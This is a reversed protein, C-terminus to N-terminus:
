QLSQLYAVIYPIEEDKLNLNPMKSGPKVGPPDHLWTALSKADNPLIGAALTRRRAFHTLNPGAIGAMPTGKITHCGACAGQTVLRKGTAISSDTPEVAPRAENALWANFEAPTQAIMRMRMLAHSDGCFEACQGMYIGPAEPTFVLHNVRNTILDRKGGMQPVWFSHLVNDSHLRLAVQRGVPVHIENATYVTDNGVAYKFQWWWQKGVVDITLADARPTPQTSFIAKVTPVAIIAVIVAPILTWTLELTTNGHIQQPEPAGPRYRFRLLIYAMVAFTLLGVGIGLKLTLFYLDDQIRAMDSAPVMTTQPYEKLHDTGRACASLIPLVALSAWMAAARIRPLIARGPTG